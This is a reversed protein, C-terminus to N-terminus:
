TSKRRVSASPLPRCWSRLRGRGLGSGTPKTTFYPDFIKELQAEPIGCGADTVTIHVYRGEPLPLSPPVGVRMNAARIEIVGGEPMAQTANILLNHIVQSMQGTDVDVLWLDPPLSLDCRVNAGHLALSVAESLLAPLAATQRMPAGGQAFTLLQRALEAARQCAQLAQTLAAATAAPQDGGMQALSIYGMIVNLLNNFDHAIGGALVGLSELKRARLWEDEMEIRRVIEEQLTTNAHALAATREQVVHELNKRYEQLAQAAQRSQRSQAELELSLDTLRGVIAAVTLSVLPGVVTGIYAVGLTKLLSWTVPMNVLAVLLGGKLGWLLAALVIYSLAVLRSPMGWAELMWPFALWYAGFVGTFAALKVKPSAKALNTLRLSPCFRSARPM